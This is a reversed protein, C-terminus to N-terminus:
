RSGHDTALYFLIYEGKTEGGGDITAATDGAVRSAMLPM